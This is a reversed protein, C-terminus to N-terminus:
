QLSETLQYMPLIISICVILVIIGVLIILIPEIMRQFREFSNNLNEQINSHCIEFVESIKGTKEGSDIISEWDQLKNYVNKDLLKLSNSITNGDFVHHYIKKFQGKLKSDNISEYGFLLADSIVVGSSVSISLVKLWKEIHWFLYIEKVYITKSLFINKVKNKLGILFENKRLFIYTIGLVFLCSLDIYWFHILHDSTLMLVNTSLPIHKLDRFLPSIKPIIVFLILMLLAGTMCLILAPYIFANNMKQKQFHQEKLLDSLSLFMNDINGTNEAVRIFSIETKSFYNKIDQDQLVISLKLGSDIDQHIQTTELCNASIKTSSSLSQGSKLYYYNKKYWLSRYELNKIKIM